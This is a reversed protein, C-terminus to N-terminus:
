PRRLDYVCGAAWGARGHRLTEAAELLRGAMGPTLLVEGCLGCVDARVKVLAVDYEHRVLRDVDRARELEGGCRGCGSPGLLRDWEDHLGAAPLPM